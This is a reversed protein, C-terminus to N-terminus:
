HPLLQILIHPQVILFRFARTLDDNWTKLQEPTPRSLSLDHIWGTVSPVNDEAICAAVESLDLEQSVLFVANRETHERLDRWLGNMIESALKERLAEHTERPPKKQDDSM